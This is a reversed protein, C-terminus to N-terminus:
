CVAQSSDKKLGDLYKAAQMAVKEVEQLQDRGSALYIWGCGVM